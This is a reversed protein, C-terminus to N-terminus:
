RRLERGPEQKPAKKLAAEARERAAESKELDKRHGEKAVDLRLEALKKSAEAKEKAEREKKVESKAAKLAAEAERREKELKAKEGKISDAFATWANGLWGGSKQFKEFMEREAVMQALVKEMARKEETVRDFVRKNKERAKAAAAQAEMARDAEALSAKAAESARQIAAAADAKAVEAQRITEALAKAAQQESHWGPRTLRRKAPGLRTLGHLLGVKAFFDGQFGRMAEKYARNQEGKLEGRAKAELAAARGPHISEFRAGKEPTKYFHLHRHSEDFHEIVSLLRGDSALWDITDRKLADWGEDSLDDPASVVGALLCLGDKRLRHGRADKAEDAWKTAEAEVEALSMGFLIKPPQPAEVHPHAGEERGAEAMISRVSHGGAKGAGATRAYSEVHIFQFGM